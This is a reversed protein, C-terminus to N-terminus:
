QLGDVIRAYVILDRLKQCESSDPALRCVKQNLESADPLARRQVYIIGLAEYQSALANKVKQRMTKWARVVQAVVDDAPRHRSFGEWADELLRIAREHNERDEAELGAGKVFDLAEFRDVRDRVKELVDEIEEADLPELDDGDSQKEAIKALLDEAADHAGTDRFKDVVVGADLKAAELMGALFSVRAQELLQEAIDERIRRVDGIDKTSGQPDLKAARRLASIAHAPLGLDLADRALERLEEASDTDAENALVDFMARPAIEDRDISRVEEEPYGVELRVTDDDIEVVQGILVEGSELELTQQAPSITALLFSPLIIRSLYTSM